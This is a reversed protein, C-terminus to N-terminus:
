LSFLENLFEDNSNFIAKKDFKDDITYIPKYLEGEKVLVVSHKSLKDPKNVLYKDNNKEVTVISLGDLVKKKKGNEIEHEIVLKNGLEQLAKNDYLVKTNSRPIKVELSKYLDLLDITNSYCNSSKKQKKLMMCM